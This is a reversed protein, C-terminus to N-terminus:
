AAALFSPTPMSIPSPSVDRRGPCSRATRIWALFTQRGSADRRRRRRRYPPNSRRRPRDLLLPYPSRASPRIRPARLRSLHRHDQQATPPGRSAGPALRPRSAGSQAESCACRSGGVERERERRSETQRAAGEPEGDHTHTHRMCAMSRLPPEGGM